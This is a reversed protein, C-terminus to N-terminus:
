QQYCGSTDGGNHVVWVEENHATSYSITVTAGAKVTTSSQEVGNRLVRVVVSTTTSNNTVQVSGGNVHELRQSKNTSTVSWGWIGAIASCPLLCMALLLSLVARMM